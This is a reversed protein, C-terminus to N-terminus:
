SRRLREGLLALTGAAITLAGGAGGVDIEPASIRHKHKGHKEHQGHQEYHGHNNQHEHNKDDAL